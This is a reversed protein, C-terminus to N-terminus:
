FRFNATLLASRPTGPTYRYGSKNIAAVYKKDFLNYVNLQVDFHRNVAYTAVADFVVYSKTYNPTGVAGDRGRKMDGAYRAGGGISLGFPLRYTTWATFAYKPTYALDTSGDQSVVTGKVVETDMTTFGSSISWRDTLKGVATLEIGNIRKEGTQYYLGDDAQVVENSVETRYVAASLLLGDDLLNWKTGVEATRAKQADFAPNDASNASSSLQLQAGGPPQASVAYGAYISGNAAPKYVVGLKWNFLNDSKSADVGPVITGTLEGVPCPVPNRGAGCAVTSNFDTKYHDLRVGGTVLWQEGFKLTDFAYFAETTTEGHSDVGSRGWAPGSATNPDPHYLNAPTWDSGDVTAMGTTSLKERTLEIGTSLNHEISGTQFSTTLNTQNTLITNTNDKFTPNSRAVTWSSPDAPDPTVLNAASFMFATLLYDQNTRGWRTTNRLTTGHSFDHEVHVTAMDTKVNDHDANTGYFNDQDVRPASDLWPRDPDPSSYGPLGITAVGGDPVNDQKVHLLNVYVRTPTGLGFALAPAVGWRNNEVNNRGAVGADQGLLNLRFASHEGLQQNWDATVRKRNANGYSVSGSVANTLQPQKTVMNISGGASTRGNDTGAPGKEVEIQEINFVDRSASGLDRVGDVFISSSADFGRMNVADGTSTNGNEGVYFTGVGPSNRLAEALTTAGQDHILEKSIISITQPTDLLPQTFKASSLNDVRYDSTATAEVKVGPLNKATTDIQADTMDTAAAPLALALSTFLTAATLMGASASPRRSAVLHKRSTIPAM